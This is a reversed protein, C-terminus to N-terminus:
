DNSSQNEMPIFFSDNPPIGPRLYDRVVLEPNTIEWKPDVDKAGKIPSGKLFRGCLRYPGNEDRLRYKKVTADALPQMVGDVNWNFTWSSGKRYLLLDDHKRNWFRESSHRTQYSWIVNNLFNERGFVEDLLLKISHGITNDCHM